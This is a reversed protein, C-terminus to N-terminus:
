ESEESIELMPSESTSVVKGTVRITKNKVFEIEREEDEQVWASDEKRRKNFFSIIMKVQLDLWDDKFERGMYLSYSDTICWHHTNKFCVAFRPANEFVEIHVECDLGSEHLKDWMEQAIEGHFMPADEDPTSRDPSNIMGGRYYDEIMM